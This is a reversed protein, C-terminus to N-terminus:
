FRRFQTNQNITGATAQRSMDLEINEGEMVDTDVSQKSASNDVDSLQGQGLRKLSFLVTHRLQEPRIGSRQSARLSCNRVGLGMGLVQFRFVVVLVRFGLDPSQPRVVDKTNLTALRHGAVNLFFVSPPAVPLIVLTLPLRPLPFPLPNFTSLYRQFMTTMTRHGRATGFCVIGFVDFNIRVRWWGLVDTGVVEKGVSVVAGVM